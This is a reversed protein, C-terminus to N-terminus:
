AEGEAGPVAAVRLPSTTALDDRSRELDFRSDRRDVVLWYRDSTVREFGPVEDLPTWLRPLGSAVFFGVFTALSACLVMTEFTIVIYSPMPHIPRGGVDIPFNYSNCYWQVLYGLAAGVLGAVLTVIPLRSRRLGLADDLEDVECPTYADLLEYGRERLREAAARLDQETAYEAILGASAPTVSRSM